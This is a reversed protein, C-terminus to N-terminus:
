MICHARLDSQDRYWLYEETSMGSHLLYRYMTASIDHGFLLDLSLFRRENMFHAQEVLAPSGPHVYETSESYIFIADPRVDLIARMALISAKCCHKINNVFGVDSM